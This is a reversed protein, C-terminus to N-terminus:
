DKLTLTFASSPIEKGNLYYHRDINLGSIKKNKYSIEYSHGDLYLTFKVEGRADGEFEGVFLRNDSPPLDPYEYFYPAIFAGYWAPFYARTLSPYPFIPEPRGYSVDYIEGCLEIYMETDLINGKTSEELLNDGASNVVTIAFDVPSYDIIMDDDESKCSILGSFIGIIVLSFLERKM